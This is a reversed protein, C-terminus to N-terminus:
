SWANLIQKFLMECIWKKQRISSVKRKFVLEEKFSRGEELEFEYWFSHDQLQYIKLFPLNKNKFEATTYFVQPVVVDKLGLSKLNQLRNLIEGETLTDEVYLTELHLKKFLEVMPDLGNRYHIHVKLQNEILEFAKVSKINLQDPVWIKLEVLPPSSRYGVTFGLPQILPEVVHALESEALDIFQWSILQSTRQPGIQQLKQDLHDQWIKKIEFPPGPLFWFLCPKNDKLVEISFGSATGANNIFVEAGAPFYAQWKHGPRPEVDLKRLRKEIRTWENENFVLDQETWDAVLQRTLDDTTPGLGGTVIVFDSTKQALKLTELIHESHDDVAFHRQVEFNYDLLKNSIWSANLNVVQGSTVESGTAIISAIRM